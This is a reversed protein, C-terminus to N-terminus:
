SLTGKSKFIEKMAKKADGLKGTKKARDLAERYPETSPQANTGGGETMAKKQADKVEAKLEKQKQQKKPEQSRSYRAYAIDAAAMLGEPDNKFRNDQMIQAIQQTMPNTNDWGVVKGQKNKNFAKPYAKQVYELSQRKKAEAQSAKKSEKRVQKIEDRLTEKLDEKELRRIEGEAEQSLEPNDSALTRLENIRDERSQKNSQAQREELAKRAAEDALDPMRDTLEQYKRKWEAARNKFPVGSDDLAEVSSEGADSQTDPTLEPEQTTTTEAVEQQAEVDQEQAGTNEPNQTEETEEKVPEDEKVDDNRRFPNLPSM